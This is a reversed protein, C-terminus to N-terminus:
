KLSSREFSCQPRLPREPPSSNQAQQHVQLDAVERDDVRGLELEVTTQRREGALRSGALGDDDIGDHEREAPARAGVRQAVAGLAGLDGRRELGAGVRGDLAPELLLGDLRVGALEHEPADDAAVPAGALVDVPLRQGGLAHALEALAQDVDVALLFEDREDAAIRLALDDIGVADRRSKRRVDGRQGALPALAACFAVREGRRCRVAARPELQQAVLDTLELGERERGAFGFGEGALAVPERVAAAEGLRRPSGEGEAELTVAGVRVRESRPRRALQAIGRREVRPEQFREGPELFREDREAVGTGAETRIELPEIGVRRPLLQDFSADRRDVVERALM